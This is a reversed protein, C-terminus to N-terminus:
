PRNEALRTLIAAAPEETAHRYGTGAWLHVREPDGSSAAAKRLASTLQHIAPYGFPARDSYRETFDNRLARAPRGTFAHTIVTGTRRPDALASRHTSTTGAENSRLLVTGVAAADAGARLVAAVADATSLGGAAIVPLAVAHRIAAVLDGIAIDTLPRRPTFTGSHGGAAPAQVALADISTEAAAKAEDVTTVTQILFAGTARLRALDAAGPIAFTFSVVPAPQACLIDIKDNWHDNEDVPMSDDLTLGYRAAEGAIMRAYARLDGAEIPLPNPVFLNVGFPVNSATMLAIEDAVAQPTKYGAALFGMSGADAAARALVPSGPGGAMPAALVPLTLGLHEVLFEM